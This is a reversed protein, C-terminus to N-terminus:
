TVTFEQVMGQTFHPPGDDEGGVTIFCIMAYSGPDLETLGKSSKGPEAEIAGKFETKDQGQDEPLALLEDWTLNVGDKKRVIAMMHYEAESANTFKFATTGAEITKPVGQYAYDVGTVNTTEFGCPDIAGGVLGSYTEYTAEDNFAEADGKTLAQISTNLEAAADALEDPAKEAVPTFLPAIEKGQAIIEDKPTDESIDIQFV